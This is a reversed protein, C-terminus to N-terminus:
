RSMRKKEAEHVERFVAVIEELIHASLQESTFEGSQKKSRWILKGSHHIAPEFKVDRLRISQKEFDLRRKDQYARFGLFSGNMSNIVGQCFQAIINLGFSAAFVLENPRDERIKIELNASSEAMQEVQTRIVGILDQAAGLALQIGETSQELEHADRTGGVEKDIAAFETMANELSSFSETRKAADVAQSISEVVVDMGHSTSGGLRGALIPSFAKVDEESVDRWIPLIVKRETTELAFLGDLEAQPWKKAFFHKSFVVVGFDCENLGEGIKQLLSDGITLQDKDYWTDFGAEQLKAKLPDVFDIKDESAHSIFLKTTQSDADNSMDAHNKQRIM